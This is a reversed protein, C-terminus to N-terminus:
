QPDINSPGKKTSIEECYGAHADPFRSLTPNAAKKEEWPMGSPTVPSPLEDRACASTDGRPIQAFNLLLSVETQRSSVQRPSGM